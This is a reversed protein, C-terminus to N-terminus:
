QATKSEEGTKEAKKIPKNLKISVKIIRRFNDILDRSENLIGMYYANNKVDVNGEKVRNIQREITQDLIEELESTAKYFTKLTKFDKQRYAEEVMGVFEAFRNSIEELENIQEPLLPNHQNNVYDKSTKSIFHISQIVDQVRNMLKIYNNAIKVQHGDINQLLYYLQERMKNGQDFIKKVNANIDDLKEDNYNKVGDVISAYEVKLLGLLKTLRDFTKNLIQKIDDSIIHTISIVEEKKEKTEKIFRLHNNYILYLAVAFLVFAFWLGLNYLLSAFLGAITFAVLATVFWGAIVNIVGAIRYVASERGWARDALSSGMAVMFTVYTTSLPLKHSTAYSIIIAAVILNVSARILDFDPANKKLKKNLKKSDPIQFRSNIWQRVSPPIIKKLFKNTEIAARVISRSALNADFKEDTAGQSSLDLATQAVKMAKESRWLTVVMIVGAGILFLTPTPVKKALGEMMFTMPDGGNQLLIEYSNYAAIPVGIFNVLDNGAFALALSFTGLLIIIKFINYKFFKNIIYSLVTGIIFSLYIITLGNENLFDKIDSYFPTGKLGKLIIFYSISAIAIGGFVAVSINRKNIDYQFTFILRSIYQVIAAITFAVVISLLIGGIIMLARSSNIFKAIEGLQYDPSEYIKWISVAVAAGLLEFVISVTTSTPLGLRNFTDLLIIDTLMVAVFIIIIEHFTFMQPHFIGKRAVEMMGSSFVAGFFVGLGAVIMITRFSFVKTGLASNLFNVADNSVGVILDVVALFILMAILATYITMELHKFHQGFTLFINIKHPNPRASSNEVLNTLLILFFYPL